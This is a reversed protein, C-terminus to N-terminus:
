GLGADEPQQLETLKSDAWEEYKARAEAKAAKELDAIRETIADKARLGPDAPVLVRGARGDHFALKRACRWTPRRRVTPSRNRAARADPSPSRTSAGRYKRRVLDAIARRM